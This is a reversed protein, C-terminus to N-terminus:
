GDQEVGEVRCLVEGDSVRLRLKQEEKVDEVRRILDGQEDRAISYGRALVKLPSMADLAAALTALEGRRERLQASLVGSM